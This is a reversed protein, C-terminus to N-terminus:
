NIDKGEKLKDIMEQVAKKNADNPALQLAKAAFELAKARDGNASWGRAMGVLTIFQDPNKNYNYQFIEFAASALLM